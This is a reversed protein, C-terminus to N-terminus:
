FSSFPCHFLNHQSTPFFTFNRLSTRLIERPSTEKSVLPSRLECFWSPSNIKLFIFPHPHATNVSHPDFFSIKNGGPVILKTFCVFEIPAFYFYPFSVYPLPLQTSQM